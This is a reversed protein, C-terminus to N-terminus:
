GHPLFPPLAHLSLSLEMKKRESCLGDRVHSHWIPRVSIPPKRRGWRLRHHSKGAKALRCLPLLPGPYGSPDLLGSDSPPRAGRLLAQIAKHGKIHQPFFRPPPRGVGVETWGPPRMRRYLEVSVAMGAILLLHEAMVTIRLFWRRGRRLFTVVVFAPFLLLAENHTFVAALFCLVYLRRHRPDDRRIVGEYLLYTVLLVLFAFLAYNRVRGGWIISQPDFTLLAAAILGVWPSFLKRGVWYLLLISIVSLIVSPMRAVLESFGFLEFALANLYTFLMGQSYIAGTSFVPYGYQITRQAVWMTTYEDIFPSTTRAYTLRFYLGLLTLILLALPIFLPEDLAEQGSAITSGEDAASVGFPSKDGM